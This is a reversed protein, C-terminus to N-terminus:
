KNESNYSTTSDHNASATPTDNSITEDSSYTKYLSEQQIYNAETTNIDSLSENNKNNDNNNTINNNIESNSNNNDNSNNNNDSNNNDKGNNNIINDNSNNNNDNNNDNNNNDNNNNNNNNNDNSYNNHHNNNFKNKLYYHKNSPNYTKMGQYKSNFPVTNAYQSAVYVVKMYPPNATTYCINGANPITAFQNNDKNNINIPYATTAPNQNNYLNMVSSSVHYAAIGSMDAANGIVIPSTPIATPAAAIPKGNMNINVPNIFKYPTYYSVHNNKNGNFFPYKNGNNSNNRYNYKNNMFNNHGHYYNNNKNYNYENSHKTSKHYPFSSSRNNNNNNFSGERYHGNNERYNNRRNYSNKYNNQHFVPNYTQGAFPHRYPPVSDEVKVSSSNLSSTEISSKTIENNSENKNDVSALPETASETIDNNEITQHENLDNNINLTENSILENM